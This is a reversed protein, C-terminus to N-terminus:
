VAGLRRVEPIDPMVGENFRHSEQHQETITDMYGNASVSRLGNTFDLTIDMPVQFISIRIARDARTKSHQGHFPSEFNLVVTLGGLADPLGHWGDWM